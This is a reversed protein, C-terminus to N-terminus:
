INSENEKDKKEHKQRKHIKLNYRMAEPSTGKIEDGCVDCKDFYIIRIYNIEEEKTKM